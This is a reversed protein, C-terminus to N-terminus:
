PRGLRRRAANLRRDLSWGEEDRPAVAAAVAAAKEALSLWKPDGDLDFLDLL